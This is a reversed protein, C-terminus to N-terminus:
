MSPPGEQRTEPVLEWVRQRIDQPLRVNDHIFKLLELAEKGGSVPQAAPKTKLFVSRLWTVKEARTSRSLLRELGAVDMHLQLRNKGSDDKVRFQQTECYGVRRANWKLGLLSFVDRCHVWRDEYRVCKGNPHTHEPM